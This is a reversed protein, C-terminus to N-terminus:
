TNFPVANEKIWQLVQPAACAVCQLLALADAEASHLNPPSGCDMLHTYIDVLKFSKPKQNFNTGNEGDKQVIPRTPTTENQQQM